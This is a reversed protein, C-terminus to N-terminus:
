WISFWDTGAIAGCSLMIFLILLILGSGVGTCSCGRGFGFSEVTVRGGHAQLVEQAISLGLGAGPVHGSEALGGRFFREFIKPLEEAPIGPGTDRVAITVWPQEEVTRTEPTITVSGGASTLDGTQEGAFIIANEVLEGLAQTLRAQDGMVLPLDAPISNAELALHAASARSQFRVIVDQILASLMIPKWVSVAQGSDLATVELIDQILDGLRDSQDELVQLYRETKEPRSGRRLLNAYLKINTVPTRLQHSVNTIFQSRARDLEKFRSIDNHSCAYGTLRGEADRIPSVSLAADYLRGDKRQLAIEGRWSNGTALAEQLLQRPQDAMGGGILRFFDQELAEEPPYGSLATFAPNIYRVRLEADFMVIADGVNLLITEIKEQEARIDATRDAVEAELGEVLRANEIAIAAQDALLGLVRLEDESFSHPKTFAITFVGVVKGAKKLPFGAVAQVNWKQAEPSAYLPHHPADNIIIPQAERAVTATLGTRRPATVAPERRGDDWLATGFAFTERAEDYLYIHCDTAGVLALASAAIDDLVTSLDLSSTLQLSTRSLTELAEVRQQASHYLQANQIVIAAQSALMSVLALDNESFAPKGEANLVTLTGTVEEKILLPAVAISQASAPEQEAVRLAIGTNRPDTLLNESITPAKERIVWGSIGDEVEQYSIGDLQDPAFGHGVAMTLERMKVDVLLILARDAGTLRACREAVLQLLADLELTSTIDQSTEYLATLQEAHKTAAEYLRANEIAVAAQNAFAQVLEARVRGFANPKESDLTLCGTVDGRVLLPVGMWGRVLDTSVWRQFRPSEQADPLCIPQRTTLLEHFLSDQAAYERGVIHELSQFGRGAVARLMDGELLFVCASDFPVVQELQDLIRTLTEDLGLTEAVAAGAYRLTEAEHWRAKVDQLLRARDLAAAALPAFRELLAVDGPSFTRTAADLVNLVGLTSEQWVIPASVCAGFGADPYQASRGEWRDYDAVVISRTADLVKGALGEGRRFVTGTMDPELRYNLALELDDTAPRYVWITGGEARLLDVARAVIAHLLDPLARRSALDLTTEHLAALTDARWRIEEGARVRATVEHFIALRGTLRGRRDCLPSISLDYHRRSEGEGLIIEAQAETVDSSRELLVRALETSGDTQASLVRNAQQGIAESAPCGIIRGAAPNLDVIRNQADLVIVGDGMTEIIVARAAPVIDLLRFRFLGWAVALGSITFAVPTLDLNPSLGVLWLANGLWPMLVAVLVAITQGLYLRPSHLLMQAILITGSALLPYAYAVNLWYAVGRTAILAPFPGSTDVVSDAYFLHHADNTWMLLLAVVPVVALLAARRATLWKSRGTYQLAFALWFVPVSVIGLYEIKVLLLKTQRDAMGLEVAYALSWVAAALM